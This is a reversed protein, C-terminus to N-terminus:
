AECLLQNVSEPPRGGQYCQDVMSVLLMFGGGSPKLHGGGLLVKYIVALYISHLSRGTYRGILAEVDFRRRLRINM